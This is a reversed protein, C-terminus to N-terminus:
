EAARQAGTIRPLMPSAISKVYKIGTLPYGTVSGSEFPAFAM